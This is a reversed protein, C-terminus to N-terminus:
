EPRTLEIRFMEPLTAGGYIEDLAKFIDPFRDRLEERSPDDGFEFTVEFYGTSFVAFFEHVDAMMHTGPYLGDDLAEKYFKDWEEHDAQTFCLNQLAHAYEHTAVLGRYQYFPHQPGFNGLLQEEAALSVPLGKVAGLGRIEFTDRSRGTFDKTGKLHAFEPIDTNVQDRPTIALDAGQLSMCSAIDERGSLMVEIIEAAAQLAAPDVSEHAKVMVGKVPRFQTYYLSPRTIVEFSDVIDSWLRGHRTVDSECMFARIRFVQSYEPLLQSVMVIEEVDLVCYPPTEQVRNRFRITRQGETTEDEVSNVEFLSPTFWWDEWDEQLNDQVMEIFQDVNYGVPLRQSWVRFQSWPSDSTYKGEKERIWGEPLEITYDYELKQKLVISAGTSSSAGSTGTDSGVFVEFADAIVGNLDRFYCYGRNEVGDRNFVCFLAGYDAGQASTHVAAWWPKSALEDDQGRISHGALGSVFAFSRGPGIHLAASQSAISQTEFNEMLHTRSYSHEHGTAIIAGAKRCEEYPEWGIEDQKGGVQMLRRNKHWSCVRWLSQQAEESALAEELFSLRGSDITGLGSLVFFLGGYTCFSNVGLDGTCKAGSIRALREELKQQYGEWAVVDHNGISAFYPFDEGLTENIMEDWGEPDDYYDFDGSHLVMDAGEERIMNLVARSGSGLGQDGIFAVKFNPPM